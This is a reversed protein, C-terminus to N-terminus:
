VTTSQARRRVAAIGALGLTLMGLTGPEPVVAAQLGALRFDSWDSGPKLLHYRSVPMGDLAFWTLDGQQKADGNGLTFTSGGSVLQASEAGVGWLGNSFGALELGTLRVPLNFTLLLAEGAGMRELEPNDLPGVSVGLGSWNAAIRADDDSSVPSVTLSLGDATSFSATDQLVDLIRSLDFEHFDFRVTPETAAMSSTSAMVAMGLAAISSLLRRAM